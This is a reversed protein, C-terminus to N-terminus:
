ERSPPPRDPQAVPRSGADEAPVFAPMAAHENENEVAFSRSLKETHSRPSSDNILRPPRVGIRRRVEGELM